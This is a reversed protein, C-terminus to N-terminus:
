VEESHALSSFHQRHSLRLLPGMVHFSGTQRIDASSSGLMVLIEGPEVVLESRANLCALQAVNMEFTVRKEQGPALSLRHFGALEQLPRTISTSRLRVYLQVVEDGRYQGENAISLSIRVTDDATLTQPQIELGRYRFHAYSLGHGFPYAPTGSENTYNHGVSTASDSYSGGPKRGYFIPCQGVSRPITIPLKGGPTAAGFLVSAVARGGSAGPQWAELVARVKPETPPLPMPRGNVLVVIVPTGTRCVEQLLRVQHGPLELTSRDRSEGGPADYAWGTKDGLVVVAVDAERVVETANEISEAPGNIECGEDYFVETGPEVIARVADLVTPTNPYIRCVEELAGPSSTGASSCPM